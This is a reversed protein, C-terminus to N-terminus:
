CEAEQSRPLTRVQCFLLRFSGSAPSQQSTTPTFVSVRWPDAPVGPAQPRGQEQCSESSAPFSSLFGQGLSAQNSQPDHLRATDAPSSPPWAPLLPAPWFRTTPDASSSGRELLRDVVGMLVSIVSEDHECVTVGRSWPNRVSEPGSDKPHAFVFGTQLVM